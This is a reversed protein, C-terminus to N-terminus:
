PAAAPKGEAVQIRSQVSIVGPVSEALEVARAGLEASPVVGSLTV